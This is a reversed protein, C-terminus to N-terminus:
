NRSRNSQQNKLISESKPMKPSQGQNQVTKEMGHETKDNQSPKRDKQQYGSGERSQSVSIRSGGTVPTWYISIYECPRTGPLGGSIRVSCVALPGSEQAYLLKEKADNAKDEKVKEKYAKLRGVVDEFETEKLDLVYELASLKAAYENITGNDSIKMNEFEIILTQLRAEKVRDAGLKCTKIAEWMKKETKLTRIQLIFDELISQFLLGKVINNKKGDDSGRITFNLAGGGIHVNTQRWIHEVLNVKLSLHTESNHIDRIVQLRDKESRVLDDERHQEESFFKPSIAKKLITKPTYTPQGAFYASVLCDHVGHCDKAISNRPTKLTTFTSAQLATAADHSMSKDHGDGTQDDEAGSSMMYDHRPEGSSGDSSADLAIEQDTLQTAENQQVEVNFVGEEVDLPLELPSQLIM